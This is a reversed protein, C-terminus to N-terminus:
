LILRTIIMLRLYFNFFIQHTVVDHNRNDAAVCTKFEILYMRKVKIILSSRKEILLAMRLFILAGKKLFWKPDSKLHWDYCKNPKCEILIVQTILKLLVEIQVKILNPCM